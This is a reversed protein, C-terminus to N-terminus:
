FILVIKMRSAFFTIIGYSGNVSGSNSYKRPRLHLPSSFTSPVLIRISTVLHEIKEGPFSFMTPTPNSTVILPLVSLACIGFFKSLCMSSFYGLSFTNVARPRLSNIGTSSHSVSCLQNSYSWIGLM